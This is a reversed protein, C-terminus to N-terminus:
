IERLNYFLGRSRDELYIQTELSFNALEIVELAHEGKDSIVMELPIEKETYLEAIANISLNNNGVRTYLNPLGATIGLMKPADIMRDYDDSANPDVYVVAEDAGKEGSIKLRLLSNSITESAEEFFSAGPISRRVTNNMSFTTGGAIAQVFFGQGLAINDNAGNTGITGNWDAYQGTYATTSAFRKVVNTIQGSNAGLGTIANWSVPSPYPNGVLNAGDAVAAGSATYTIPISFDGSNPEGSYSLTQTGDIIVAYGKMPQLTTAATTVSVWGSQPNKSEVVNADNENYVWCTPFQNPHPPNGPNYVVGNPGKVSPGFNLVSLATSVNIPNSLYRYGRNGAIHRNVTINGTILGNFGTSFNDLLATYNADSALTISGNTVLNGRQLGLAYVITQMGSSITLVDANNNTMRPFTTSGNIFKAGSYSNFRVTGEGHVVTSTQAQWNGAVNLVQGTQITLNAGDYLFMNNCNGNAGATFIVPDVGPIPSQAALSATGPIFVNHGAPIVGLNWNSPNNWDASSTGLWTINCPVVTISISKIDKCGESTEKRMWVTSTTGVLQPNFSGLQPTGANADALTGYYTYIGSTANNDSVYVPNGSETIDVTAPSCANPPTVVALAPTPNVTVNKVTPTAASCNNADTYAVNVSHAGSNPWTITVTNNNTGGGSTITGGNVSWLYNSQGSETTYVNGTSYQCVIDDGFTFTPVPLSNVTISQTVPTAVSCGHVNTYNISITRSGASTWEVTATNDTATGGSTIIGGGVSWSYNSNGAETTYVYGPTNRCVPNPAAVFTPSPKPHVTVTIAKADFCGGVDTTKRVYYTGSVLINQAQANTLANTANQADTLTTYYSLTGTTGALDTVIGANTLDVVCAASPNTISLNPNTCAPDFFTLNGLLNIGSATPNNNTADSVNFTYWSGWYTDGVRAKMISQKGSGINTNYPQQLIGRYSVKASYFNFSPAQSWDGDISWYQRFCFTAAPPASWTPSPAVNYRTKVGVYGPSTVNNFNITVPLYYNTPSIFYGIPYTFTKQTSSFRKILRGSNAAVGQIVMHSASPTGTISGNEGIILNFTGLTINGPFDFAESVGIHGALTKTGGSFKLGGYGIDFYWPSSQSDTVNFSPVIQGNTAATFEM